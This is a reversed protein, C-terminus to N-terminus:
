TSADPLPGIGLQHAVAHVYQHHATNRTSAIQEALLQRARPARGRKAEIIAIVIRADSARNWGAIIGDRTAFTELWALGQAGLLTLAASASDPWSDNLPWWLDTAPEVFQGLRGRVQCDYERITKTRPPALHHEAVEPIWVGLNVTFKDHSGQAQSSPLSPPVPDPRWIQLNIVQVLGESSPRNYTRGAKSFGLPRLVGTFQTQVLDLTHAFRSRPM